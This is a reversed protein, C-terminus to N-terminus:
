TITLSVYGITELKTALSLCALLSPPRGKQETGRNLRFNPNIYPQPESM